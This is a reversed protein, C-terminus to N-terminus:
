FGQQKFALQSDITIDIRSPFYATFNDEIGLAALTISRGGISELISDAFPEYITVDYINDMYGSALPQRYYLELAARILEGSALVRGNERAVTLDAGTAFSDYAPDILSVDCSVASAFGRLTLESAVASLKYIPNGQSGESFGYFADGAFVYGNNNGGSSTANEPNLSYSQMINFQNDVVVANPENATGDTLIIFTDSLPNYAFQSLGGQSLVQGIASISITEELTASGDEVKYKKIIEAPDILVYMFDGRVAICSIEQGVNILLKERALVPDYYLVEDGRQFAGNKFVYKGSVSECRDIIRIDDDFWGEVITGIVNLNEDIKLFSTVGARTLYLHPYGDFFRMVRMNAFQYPNGPIGTIQNSGLIDGVNIQEGTYGYIPNINMALGVRSDDIFRGDAKRVGTVTTIEGQIIKRDFGGFGIVFIISKAVDTDNILTVGRFVTTGGSRREDGSEMLTSKGNIVVRISGDSFKCYVFEGVVPIEVTSNAPVLRSYDQADRNVPLPLDEFQSM